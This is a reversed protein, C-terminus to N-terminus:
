LVIQFSASPAQTAAESFSEARPFGFLRLTTANNATASIADGCATKACYAAPPPAVRTVPAIAIPPLVPIVYATVAPSIAIPEAAVAFEPELMIPVVAGAVAIPQSVVAEPYEAVASPENAAADAAPAVAMPPFAVADATFAVAIPYPALAAFLPSTAKPEPDTLEAATAVVLVVILPTVYLKAPM